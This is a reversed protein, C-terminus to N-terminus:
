EKVEEFGEGNWEYMFHCEGKEPDNAVAKIDKGEVPLSYSIIANVDPWGVGLSEASVIVMHSTKTDYLYFTIGTFQNDVVVGDVFTSTNTAVVFHRGDDCRWCCFETFGTHAGSAVHEKEHDYSIYGHSEDVTFHGAYQHGQRYGKWQSKIYSLLEGPDEQSCIAVLFESITPSKGMFAVPFSYDEPILEQAHETLYPRLTEYPIVDSPMGMAYAAVEYQQYIFVFGEVTMYPPTVPLPIQAVDEVGQLNKMLDLDTEANFYDKLMERAIDCVQPKCDNRVIDWTQRSGDEKSFTAGIKQTTPHVGGLDLTITLSYTIVKDTEFVRDMEVDYSLEAWEPVGDAYIHRLSDLHDKGYFDVLAQIDTMDGSYRDGMQASLWEGVAQRLGADPVLAVIHCSLQDDSHSFSATDEFLSWSSDDDDTNNMVPPRYQGAALAVISSAIVFVSALIGFASGAVHWWRRLIIAAILQCVLIALMLLTGLVALGMWGKHENMCAIVAAISLLVCLVTPIAWLRSFVILRSKTSEQM